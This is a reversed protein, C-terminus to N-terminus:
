YDIPTNKEGSYTDTNLFYIEEYGDQDVDCSAVGITRRNKDLFISQDVTNFLIGKKYGLALNKFGFGTVIFEFKGDNNVDSVSIGYSLRPQNDLLQYTIDEFFEESSASNLFQIIIILFFISKKM